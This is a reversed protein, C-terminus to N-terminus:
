HIRLITIACNNNQWKQCLVRCSYFWLIFCSYISLLIDIFQFGKDTLLFHNMNWIWYWLPMYGLATFLISVSDCPAIPHSNHINQLWHSPQLIGLYIKMQTETPPHPCLDDMMFGIVRAHLWLLLMLSFCLLMKLWWLVGNFMWLPSM